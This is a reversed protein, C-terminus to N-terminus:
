FLCRCCHTTPNWIADQLEEEHVAYCAAICAFESPQEGMWTLGDYPCSLAQIPKAFAVSAGFAIALVGFAGVLWGVSKRIWRTM